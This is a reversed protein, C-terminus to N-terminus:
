NKLKKLKKCPKSLNIIKMLKSKKLSILGLYSLSTASNSNILLAKFFLTESANIENIEFKKIASDIINKKKKKTM